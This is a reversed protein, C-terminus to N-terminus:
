FKFDKEIVERWKDGTSVEDAKKKRVKRDSANEYKLSSLFETYHIKIDRFIIHTSDVLKQIDKETEM